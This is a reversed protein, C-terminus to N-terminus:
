RRVGARMAAWERLRFTVPGFEESDHVLWWDAPDASGPRKMILYAFTTGANLRQRELELLWEEIQAWPYGAKSCRSPQDKVSFVANGQRIDGIDKAGSLPQRHADDLGLGVLYRVVATEARTGKQKSASM